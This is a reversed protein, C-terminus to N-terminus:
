RVTIGAHDLRRLRRATVVPDRRSLTLTRKLSGSAAYLRRGTSKGHFRICSEQLHHDAGLAMNFAQVGPSNLEFHDLM